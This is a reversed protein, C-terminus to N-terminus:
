IKSYCFSRFFSTLIALDRTRQRELMTFAFFLARVRSNKRVPNITEAARLQVFLFLLTVEWGGWWPAVLLSPGSVVDGM